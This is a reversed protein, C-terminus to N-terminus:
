KLLSTQSMNKFIGKLTLGYIWALLNSISISINLVVSEMNWHWAVNVFTGPLCMRGYSQSYWKKGAVTLSLGTQFFLFSLVTIKIHKARLCIAMRQITFKRAFSKLLWTEGCPGPSSDVYHHSDLPKLAQCTTPRPAPRLSRPFYWLPCDCCQSESTM